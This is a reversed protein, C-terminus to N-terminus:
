YQIHGTNDANHCQINGLVSHKHVPCEVFPFQSSNVRNHLSSSAMNMAYEASGKTRCREIRLVAPSVAIQLVDAKVHASM